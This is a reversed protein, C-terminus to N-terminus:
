NERAEQVVSRSCAVVVHEWWWAREVVVSQSMELVLKDSCCLHQCVDIPCSAEPFALSM